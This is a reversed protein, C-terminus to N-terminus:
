SAARSARVIQVARDTQQEERNQVMEVVILIGTADGGPEQFRDWPAAVDGDRVKVIWTGFVRLDGRLRGRSLFQEVLVEPRSAPPGALLDEGVEAVQFQDFGAEHRDGLPTRAPLAGNELRVRDM